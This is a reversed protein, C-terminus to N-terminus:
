LKKKLYKFTKIKKRLIEHASRLPGCEGQFNLNRLNGHYFYGIIHWQVRGGAVDIDRSGGGRGRPYFKEM